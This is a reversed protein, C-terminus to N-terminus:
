ETRCGQFSFDAYMITATQSNGEVFRSRPPVETDRIGECRLRGRFNPGSVADVFVHCPGRAGIIGNQPVVEWGQGRLILNGPDMEGSLNSPVSGSVSIAETSQDFSTAGGALNAVRFSIDFGSGNLLVSCDVGTNVVHTGSTCGQIMMTPDPAPCRDGWVVRGALPTPASGCGLANVALM